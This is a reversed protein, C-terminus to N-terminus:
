AQGRELLSALKRRARFLLPKLSRPALGLTDAIERHSAGEAYALWLMAREKPKLQALARTLDAKSEVAAVGSAGPVQEIEDGAVHAPMRVLSRRRADAALNTAIRYLSNRRHSDSEYSAGARLFRYFTEQLLDEALTRDGTVRTLYAWIGRATRDYFARFSEEDMVLETANDLAREGALDQFTTEGFM